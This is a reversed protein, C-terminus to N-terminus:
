IGVKDKEKGDKRSDGILLAGIVIFLFGTPNMNVGLIGVGIGMILSGLLMM